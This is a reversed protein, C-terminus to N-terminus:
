LCKTQVSSYQTFKFCRWSPLRNAVLSRSLIRRDACDNYLLYQTNAPTTNEKNWLKSSNLSNNMFWLKVNETVNYFPFHHALSSSTAVPYSTLFWTLFFGAPFLLLSFFFKIWHNCALPNLISILMFQIVTCSVLGLGVTTSNIEVSSYSIYIYYDTHSCPMNATTTIHQTAAATQHQDM